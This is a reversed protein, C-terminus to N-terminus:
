SRTHRFRLPTVHFARRFARIFGTSTEYGLRQAIAHVPLDTNRLLKAANDLRILRLNTAPPMDWQRRLKRGLHSRSYGIREAYTKMSKLSRPDLQSASSGFDVTPQLPSQKQGQLCRHWEDLWRYALRSWYLPPHLNGALSAQEIEDAIAHLGSTRPVRVLWGYRSVVSEFYDQALPGVLNMFFQLWHPQDPPTLLTANIPQPFALLLGPELEIRRGRTEFWASGRLSWLFCYHREYLSNLALDHVRRHTRDVKGSCIIRYYPGEWDAAHPRRLVDRGIGSTFFPDAEPSAENMPLLVSEIPGPDRDEATLRNRQTFVRPAFGHHRRFATSFAAVSQFGLTEAVSGVTARPRLLLQEALQMRARSLVRRPVEGWRRHLLQSLHAPSYGLRAALEPLAYRSFYSLRPDDASLQLLTSLPPHERELAEHASSFWEFAARSLRRADREPRGGAAVLNLTHRFLVDDPPLRWRTGYRRCLYRSYELASRGRFLLLAARVSGPAQPRLRAARPSPLFLVTGPSLPVTNGEGLALTGEQVLLWGAGTERGAALLVRELDPLSRSSVAVIVDFM